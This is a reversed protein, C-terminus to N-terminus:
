NLVVTIITGRIYALDSQLLLFVNDGALLYVFGNRSRMQHKMSFICQFLAMVRLNFSTIRYLRYHVVCIIARLCFLIIMNFLM